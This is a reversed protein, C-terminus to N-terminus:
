DAPEAETKELCYTMGMDRYVTRAIGLHERQEDKVV